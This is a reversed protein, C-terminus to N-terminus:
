KALRAEFLRLVLAVNKFYGSAINVARGSFSEDTRLNTKECPNPEKRDNQFAHLPLIQSCWVVRAMSM